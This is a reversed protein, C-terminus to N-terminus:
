PNLAMIAGKGQYRGSLPVLLADIRKGRFIQCAIKMRRGSDIVQSLKERVDNGFCEGVPFGVNLKGPKAMQQASKNALVIIGENDVCLVAIPLEDVIACSLQLSHRNLEVKPACPNVAGEPQEHITQLERNQAMNIAALRQNEITLEYHELSQRVQLLLDEDNWPKTLYRHIEGKNVAEIVADCDSYGTLLYRIAGPCLERAKALFQLGDMEPMRQDSIILSVPAKCQQLYELAERGSEATLITYGQKRFLRNLARTIAREDDM